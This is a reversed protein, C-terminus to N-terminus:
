DCIKTASSEHLVLERAPQHLTVEIPSEGCGQLRTEIILQGTDLNAGLIRIAESFAPLRTANPDGTLTLAPQNWTLTRTKPAGNVTEKLSTLTILTEGNPRTSTTVAIDLGQVLNSHNGATAGDDLGTLTGASPDAGSSSTPQVEGGDAGGGRNQTTAARPGQGGNGDGGGGGKPGFIAMLVMLAMAAAIVYPNATAMASMMMSNMAMAMQQSAQQEALFRTIDQSMEPSKLCDPLPLGLSTAGGALRASWEPPVGDPAIQEIGVIATSVGTCAQRLKDDLAQSTEDFRKQVAEAASRADEIAALVEEQPLGKAWDGPKVTALANEILEQMEAPVTETLAEQAKRTLEATQQGLDQTAAVAGAMAGMATEVGALTRNFSSIQAELQQIRVALSIPDTTSLVTEGLAAEGPEHTAQALVPSAAQVTALAISAVTSVLHALVSKAEHTQM